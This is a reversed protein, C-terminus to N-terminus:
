KMTSSSIAMMSLPRRMTATTGTPPPPETALLEPSELAVKTAISLRGRSSIMMM